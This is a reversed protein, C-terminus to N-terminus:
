FGEPVHLLTMYIDNDLFGYLCASLVDMLHMDLGESTTLCILYRFTTTFMMPSYTEKCDIGIEILFRSNHTVYAKYRTIENRENCKRIFVWKYGVIKVFKPMQVVHGFVEWKELSDLKKSIYEKWKPWHKRHQCEEVSYSEHDNDNRIIDIVLTNWDWKKGYTLLYNLDWRHFWPKTLRSKSSLM